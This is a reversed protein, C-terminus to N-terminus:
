TFLFVAKATLKSRLRLPRAPQVEASIEQIISTINVLSYGLTSADITNPEGGFKLNFENQTEEQAM